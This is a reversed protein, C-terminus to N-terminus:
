SNYSYNDYHQVQIKFNCSLLSAQTIVSLERLSDGWHEASSFFFGSFHQTDDALM